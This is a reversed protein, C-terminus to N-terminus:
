KNTLKNTLLAKKLDKIMKESTSTGGTIGISSLKRIEELNIDEVSEVLYTKVGKSRCIEALKQTNSSQHGGVVVMAEVKRALEKTERQRERVVRCITNFVRMELRSEILNKMINKFNDLSETTQAVVGIKKGPPIKKIEQASSIVNLKESPTNCVVAKIEPHEASGVIVIHYSQSALNQTIKQLRLVYPCTTQVIRLGRKTGEELITHNVGHARTFIAGRKVQTLNCIVKLGKSTLQRMVGPNHILDGLCYVERNGKKLEEEVMNIAQRVGFCFGIKRPLYVKM